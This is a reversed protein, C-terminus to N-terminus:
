LMELFAESKTLLKREMGYEKKVLDWPLFIEQGVEFTTKKNYIIDPRKLPRKRVIFFREDDYSVKLYKTREKM